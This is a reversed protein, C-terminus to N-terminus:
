FPEFGRTPDIMFGAIGGEEVVMDAWRKQAMCRGYETLRGNGDKLPGPKPFRWGDRKIEPSLFVAVVDGVMDPTILKPMWGVLDPSKIQENLARSDNALGFRVPRGNVDNLVGSNNRWLRAGMLAYHERVRNQNGGESM